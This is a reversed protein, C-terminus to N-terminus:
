LKYYLEEKKLKENEMRKKNLEVGEYNILNFFNHTLSIYNITYYVDDETFIHNGFNDTIKQTSFNVKTNENLYKEVLINNIMIKDEKSLNSFTYNFLFLSNKHFHLSLEASYGGVITKFLLITSNSLYKKIYVENNPINKKVKKLSSGLNLKNIYCVEKNTFVGQKNNCQIQLNSYYAINKYKRLIHRFYNDDYKIDVYKRFFVVTIIKKIIFSPKM